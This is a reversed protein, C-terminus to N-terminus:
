IWTIIHKYEVQLHCRQVLVVSHQQVPVHAVVRNSAELELKLYFESFPKLRFLNSAEKKVVGFCRSRIPWLPIGVSNRQTKITHKMGGCLVKGWLSPTLNCSKIESVGLAGVWIHGNGNRILHFWEPIERLYGGFADVLHFRYFIIKPGLIYLYTSNM